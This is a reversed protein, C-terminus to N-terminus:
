DRVEVRLQYVRSEGPQLTELTGAAREAARGRVWCNAPEIGLVHTGAGPMKWQVFRPLTQTAWTLRLTLPRAEGGPVPFRPNHIDVTAWEPRTGDEGTLEHLYVREVYGPEPPQWREYGERPTEAERPEVRSPPFRVETQEGLLPFGFNFHYLLMHPSEAFGFNTVRDTIMIWPQGLRGRIERHLRVAEGFIRAEEITGAVRLEYEDGLWRGEAVVHRAALHHARGHQGLSEGADESPAGVQRLGCTMLLGGAATRLWEAGRADYFAPHPTGNPSQWSLPVGAFTALGIDMGRSPTVRYTLGAATRVEVQEVGAEPGETLRVRRVGGIQEIRGVHAEIERRTWTRGYLQM